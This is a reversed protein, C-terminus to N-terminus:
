KNITSSTYLMLLSDGKKNKANVDAGADVLMKVIRDVQAFMLVTKFNANRYNVDAGADLLLKVIEINIEHNSECAFMLASSENCSFRGNV